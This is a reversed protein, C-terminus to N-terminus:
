IAGHRFSHRISMQIVNMVDLDPVWFLQEVVGGMEYWNEWSGLGLEEEEVELLCERPFALRPDSWMLAYWFEPEFTESDGDLSNIHTFLVGVGITRTHEPASM